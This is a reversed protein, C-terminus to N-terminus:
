RAFPNNSETCDVRAVMRRLLLDYEGALAPRSLLRLVLLLLLLAHAAGTAPMATCSPARLCGRLGCSLRVHVHRAPLALQKHHQM